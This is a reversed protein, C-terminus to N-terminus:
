DWSKSLGLLSFNLKDNENQVNNMYSKIRDIVQAQDILDIDDGSTFPGEVKGLCLPKEEESRGDMEWLYGNYEIFSIFHLDINDIPDPNDNAGSSEHFDNKFKQTFDKIFQDISEPTPHQHTELYEQLPSGKLLLQKNNVLIHLLAYLGCANQFTQKLWIPSYESSPVPHDIVPRHNQIPFLLIIAVMPRPLFDLLSKDDITFIDNFNYSKSLGLNYSFKDMVDPNSELPIVATQEKNM